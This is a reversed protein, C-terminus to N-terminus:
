QSGSKGVTGEPIEAPVPTLMNYPYLYLTYGHERNYSGRMIAVSVTDLINSVFELKIHSIVWSSKIAYM